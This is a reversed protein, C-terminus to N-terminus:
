PHAENRLFEVCAEYYELYKEAYDENEEDLEISRNLVEQFTEAM